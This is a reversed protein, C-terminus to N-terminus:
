GGYFFIPNRKVRRKSFSDKRMSESLKALGPFLDRWGFLNPGAAFGWFWIFEALIICLKAVFRDIKGHSAQGCDAPPSIRVHLDCACVFCFCDCVCMRVFFLSVVLNTSCSFAVMLRFRASPILLIAPQAPVAVASSLLPSKKLQDRPVRSAVVFSSGITGRSATRSFNLRQFYSLPPFLTLLHEVVCLPYFKLYFMILCDSNWSISCAESM